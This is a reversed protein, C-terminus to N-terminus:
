AEVEQLTLSRAHRGAVGGAIAIALGVVLAFAVLATGGAIFDFRPLTPIQQYAGPVAARALTAVVVLLGVLGAVTGCIAGWAAIMTLEGRRVGAQQGDTLGLARLVAIEHRRERQQGACVAIFGAIALAAGAGAAIWLATAGTTLMLLDPEAGLERVTVSAPLLERLSRASASPDSSGIWVTSSGAPTRTVELAAADIAAADILVGSSSQSGPIVPVIAAVIGQLPETTASLSITIRSGVEAGIREALGESM